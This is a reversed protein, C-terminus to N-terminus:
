RFRWPVAPVATVPDADARTSILSLATDAMKLARGMAPGSQEVDGLSDLCKAAVAQALVPHFELPLQPVATQGSVTLHDGVELSAPLADSLTILSGSITAAALDFGACEFPPSAKVLDFKMGVTFAAPLFNVTVQKTAPNFGIVQAVESTQVLRSPRLYFWVRMTPYSAATPNVLYLTSSAVYYFPRTARLADKPSGRPCNVQNGASDLLVAHRVKAGVARPPIRIPTTTSYDKSVTWFDERAGAVMPVILSETEEDALLLLDAAQFTSQATPLMGRRKISAILESTTWRTETAVAVGAQFISDPSVQLSTDRAILRYWDTPNGGADVYFFKSAGADWNAGPIAHTVTALPTWPGAMATSRAVDYEKINSDTSPLWYVTNSM